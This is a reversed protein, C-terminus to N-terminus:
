IFEITSPLFLPWQSVNCTMKKEATIYTCSLEDEKMRDAINVHFGIKESLVVFIVQLGGCTVRIEEIGLIQKQKSRLKKTKTKKWFFKSKIKHFTGYVFCNNM